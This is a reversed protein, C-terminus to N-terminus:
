LPESDASADSAPSSGGVLAGVAAGGAAGAAAFLAGGLTVGLVVGLAILSKVALTASVPTGLLAGALVVGAYGGYLVTPLLGIALFAVLGIGAGVLTHLKYRPPTSTTM